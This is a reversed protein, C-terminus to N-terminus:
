TLSSRGMPRFAWPKRPAESSSPTGPDLTSAKRVGNPTRYFGRSFPGWSPDQVSRSVQERCFGKVPGWNNSTCDSDLHRNGPGFFTLGEVVIPTRANKYAYMDIQIYTCVCLAVLVGNVWFAVLSSCVRPSVFGNNPVESVLPPVGACAPLAQRQAEGM